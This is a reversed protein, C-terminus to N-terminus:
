TANNPLLKPEQMSAAIALYINNLETVAYPSVCSSDKGSGSQNYDSYFYDISSAINEMTLCPTLSTVGSWAVNPPSALVVTTVDNHNDVPGSGCGTQESGYAVAYVRTGALAAKQGAVIAQQCEDMFDPYVGSIAGNVEKNPSSLYSAGYATYLPTSKLNSYGLNAAITSSQKTDAPPSTITGQPMYIWQLNAQGDSLFIIANKSTQNPTDYLNQEAILASQAAYIVSAYYTIGQGVNAHNVLVTPGPNGTAGNMDLGGPSLPMCGAHAGQNYGVAQVLSSAPNLGGTTKSSPLSWDAVFGNADADSAGYTFEYSATWTKAGQTYTLPGYSTATEKPLTYVYYSTGAGCTVAAPIVGNANTIINPFTFLAIRLQAQGPSCSVQGGSCNPNVAGLFTQIGNLACQFESVSNCNGDTTAMSGTADEVIAVNWANSTGQMSATAAAGVAVSNIGLVRMFYTSVTASETVKVANPVNNNQACNSGAPELVNLCVTNITPTANGVLPNYNQGGSICSYQTGVSAPTASGSTYVEGAAALAAQNACNQLQAHAVFANGVDVTLGAMGLLVVMIGALWPLVQGCQDLLARQAYSTCKTKMPNAESNM